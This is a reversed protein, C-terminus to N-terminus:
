REPLFALQSTLANIYPLAQPGQCDKPRPAKDIVYMCCVTVSSGQLISVGIVLCNDPSQFLNLIWIVYSQFRHRALGITSVDAIRKRRCDALGDHIRTRLLRDPQKPQVLAESLHRVREM